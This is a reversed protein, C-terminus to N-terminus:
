EEAAAPAQALGPLNLWIARRLYDLNALVYEPRLRERYQTLEAGPVATRGALGSDTRYQYTFYPAGSVRWDAHRPENYWPLPLFVQFGGQPDTTDTDYAFFTLQSPGFYRTAQVREGQDGELFEGGQVALELNFEPFFYAAEGLMSADEEDISNHGTEFRAYRAGLRLNSEPLYYQAEGTAGYQDDGFYGAHVLTYLGPFYSDLYSIYADRNVPDTKEGIDNFAPWDQRAQARLGRGLYATETLGLGLMTRFSPAHPETIITSTIVRAAVDGHWNKLNGEAAFETQPPYGGARYTFAQIGGPGAAPDALYQLLSDVDARVTLQPVDDLKPTLVLEKIGPGAQRVALAAAVGLADLQETFRRNEFEVFLTSGDSGALVNEFSEAVLADRVAEAQACASPYEQGCRQIQVPCCPTEKGRPDIPVSYSAGFAAHDKVYGGTLALGKLPEVQVGYNFDETDYEGLLALQPLAQWRAGGFVGDWAEGGAGATLALNDAARYTVAGYYGRSLVSEGAFDKIGGAVLWRRSAYLQYKASAVRDQYNPMGHQLEPVDPYDAFRAVIELRPLFGITASYSRVVTEPNQERDDTLYRGMNFVAEGDKVVEATPVTLIGSTGDLGTEARAPLCAALWGGAILALLITYKWAKMKRLDYM